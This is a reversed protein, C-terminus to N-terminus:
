DQQWLWTLAGQLRGIGVALGLGIGRVGQGQLAAKVPPGVVCRVVVPWAMRHKALLAGTGRGRRQTDRWDQAFQGPRAGGFRHHVKAVHCRGIHVGAALARLLFDVEEGAGFWQGVGLRSDFGDLRRMLKASMFLSISSACDGRFGHWRARSLVPEDPPMTQAQWQEVWRVVVGEWDTHAKFAAVVREIVDPEYWCDDDPFAIVGGSSQAIGLNRAGSLSPPHLRLHKLDLGMRSAEAVYPLLRDDSNQDVVILEFDKLTQTALSQVLRGVDDTRGVTALVLSVARCSM